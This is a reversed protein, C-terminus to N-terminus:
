RLINNEKADLAQRTEQLLQMQQDLVVKQKAAEQQIENRRDFLPKFHLMCFEFKNIRQELATMEPEQQQLLHLVERQEAIRQFQRKLHSFLQEATKKETIVQQYSKLQERLRNLENEKVSIEAATVVGTQQIREELRIRQENAKQELRSVNESLEFKQLHFLEKMMRTRETDTLELFEQFKGQPIIITRRFNEYSLQLIDATSDVEM